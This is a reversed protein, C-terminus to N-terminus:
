SLQLTAQGRVVEVPHDVEESLIDHEDAIRLLGEARVRDAIIEAPHRIHFRSHMPFPVANRHYQIRGPYKAERGHARDREIVGRSLRETLARREPHGAEGDLFVANPSQPM